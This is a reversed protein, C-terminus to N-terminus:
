VCKPYRLGLSLVKAWPQYVRFDVFMKFVANKMVRLMWYNGLIVMLILGLFSFKKFEEKSLDGWLARTIRLLM